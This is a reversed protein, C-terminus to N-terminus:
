PRAPAPAPRPTKTEVMPVAREARMAGLVKELAREVIDFHERLLASAHSM